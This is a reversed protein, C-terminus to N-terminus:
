TMSCLEMTFENYQDVNWAVQGVRGDLTSYTVNRRESYLCLDALSYLRWVNFLFFIVIIILLKRSMSDLCCHRIINVSKWLTVLRTLINKGNSLTRMRVGSRTGSAPGFTKTKTHSPLSSVPRRRYGLLCVNRLYLFSLFFPGVTRVLTQM